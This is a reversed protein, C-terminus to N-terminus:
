GVEEPFDPEQELAYLVINVATCAGSSDDAVERLEDTILALLDDRPEADLLGRYLARALQYEVPHGRKDVVGAGAAWLAALAARYAQRGFPGLLAALNSAAAGATDGEGGQSCWLIGEEGTRPTVKKSM